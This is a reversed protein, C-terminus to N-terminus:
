NAWRHECDNCYLENDYLWDIVQTSQCKPCIYDVVDHIFLKSKRKIFKSGFVRWTILGTIIILGLILRWLVGNRTYAEILQALMIGILIITTAEKKISEMARLNNTENLIVQM